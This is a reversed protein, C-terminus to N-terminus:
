AAVEYLSADIASAEPTLVSFLNVMDLAGALFTIAEEMTMDNREIVNGAQGDLAISLDFLVRAGRMNESRVVEVIALKGTLETFAESVLDAAQFVRDHSTMNRAKRVKTVNQVINEIVTEVTVSPVDDRVGSDVDAAVTETANSVDTM